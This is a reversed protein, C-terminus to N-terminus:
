SCNNLMVQFFSYDVSCKHDWCDSYKQTIIEIQSITSPNSPNREESSIKEAMSHSLLCLTSVVIFAFFVRKDRFLNM